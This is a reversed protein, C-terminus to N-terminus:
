RSRSQGGSVLHPLRTPCWFQRECDRGVSLKPEEGRWRAQMEPLRAATLSSQALTPRLIMQWLIVDFDRLACHLKLWPVPVPLSRQVQRRLVAVLVDDLEQLALLPPPVGEQRDEKVDPVLRYM